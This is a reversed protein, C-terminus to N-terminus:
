CYQRCLDMHSLLQIVTVTNDRAQVLDSKNGRVVRVYPNRFHTAGLPWWAPYGSFVLSSPPYYSMYSLDFM